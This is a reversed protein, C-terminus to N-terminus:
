ASVVLLTGLAALRTLLLSDAALASGFAGFLRQGQASAPARGYLGRARSFEVLRMVVSAFANTRLGAAATTTRAPGNSAGERAPARPATENPTGATARHHGRPRM